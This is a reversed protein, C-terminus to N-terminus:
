VAVAAGCWRLLEVEHDRMWHGGDPVVQLEAHPLLMLWARGHSAPVLVDAGGYVLRTAARVRNPDFSWERAFLALDDDVWGDIGHAGWETAEVAEEHQVEPRGLVERDSMPLREFWDVLADAGDGLSSLHERLVADGDRAASIEAVTEAVMETAGDFGFGAPGLGVDVCLATVRDPLLAATAVAHPGGGSTGIVAFRDAGCADAILRSWEAADAVTRGPTSPSGGYGPRDYSCLRVGATAPGAWGGPVAISSSPTGHHFVVLPGAPDGWERVRISGTATPLDFQRTWPANM